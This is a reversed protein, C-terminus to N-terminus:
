HKAYDTKATCIDKLMRIFEQSRYYNCIKYVIFTQTKIM